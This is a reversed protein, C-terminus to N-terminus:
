GNRRAGLRRLVDAETRWVGCATRADARYSRECHSDDSRPCDGGRSCQCQQTDYLSFDDPPIRKCEVRARLASASEAVGIHSASGSV